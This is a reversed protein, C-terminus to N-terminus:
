PPALAQREYVPTAIRTSRSRQPHPVRAPTTHWNEPQPSTTNNNPLRLQYTVKPQNLTSQPNRREQTTELGNQAQNEGHPDLTYSYSGQRNIIPSERQENRQPQRKRGQDGRLARTEQAEQPGQALQARVTQHTHEQPGGSRPRENQRGQRAEQGRLRQLNENLLNERLAEQPTKQIERRRVTGTLLRHRIQACRAQIQKQPDEYQASDAYNLALAQLYIPLPPVGTEKELAVRPTRRYAGAILRVCKNQLKELPSLTTTPLGLGTDGISWIPAGHSITARVTANFLLRTKKFSLGWTSAAIRTLASFRALGKQTAQAIHQTWRLKSDVWVGLVRLVLVPKGDFGQINLRATVNAKRRRTLHILKYKDPAFAAGSKRAWAKCEEHLKELKRCNLEASRSWVILNTDDIFGLGINGAEDKNM